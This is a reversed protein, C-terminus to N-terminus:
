TINPESFSGDNNKKMFYYYRRNEISGSGLFFSGQLDNNNYKLSAIQEINKTFSVNRKNFCIGQITINVVAFFVLAVILSFLSLIVDM